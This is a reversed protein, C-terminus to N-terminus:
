RDVNLQAIAAIKAPDAEPVTASSALARLGSTGNYDIPGHYEEHVSNVEGEHGKVLYSLSV